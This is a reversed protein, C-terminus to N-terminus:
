SKLVFKLFHIMFSFYNFQSSVELSHLFLVGAPIQTVDDQQTIRLQKIVYMETLV